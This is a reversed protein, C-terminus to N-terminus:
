ATAPLAFAAVGVIVTIVLSEIIAATYEALPQLLESM